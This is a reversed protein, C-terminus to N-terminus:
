REKVYLAWAEPGGSAAGHPLYRGGPGLRAVLASSVSGGVGDFDVQLRM